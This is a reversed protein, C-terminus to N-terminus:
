RSLNIQEDAAAPAVWIEVQTKFQGETISIVCWRTQKKFLMMSRPAKFSSIQRWGDVPMKSEFFGLLSGAEVNGYLVLVGATLGPTHFIFSDRMDVKLAKPLLVDGFDYYVPKNEDSTNSTVAAAGSSSSLGERPQLASCGAIMFLLSLIGVWAATKLSNPKRM